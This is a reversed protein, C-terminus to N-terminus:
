VTISAMQFRLPDRVVVDLDVIGRLWIAARQFVEKAMGNAQIELGEGFLIMTLYSFDGCIIPISTKKTASDVSEYRDMKATLVTDCFGGRIQGNELFPVQTMTASMSQQSAWLNYNFGALLRVREQDNMVQNGKLIALLEAATSIDGLNNVSDFIEGLIGLPANEEPAISGLIADDICSSLSKLIENAILGELAPNTDNLASRYLTAILGASHPKAELSDFLADSNPLGADRAIWSPVLPKVLRPVRVLNTRGAQITQVGLRGAIANPLFAGLAETYLGGALIPNALSSGLDNGNEDPPTITNQAAKTLYQFPIMLTDSPKGSKIACEQSMEMEYGANSKNSDAAALVFKALSYTRNKDSKIIAPPMLDKELPLQNLTKLEECKMELDATMEALQSSKQDVEDILAQLKVDQIEEQDINM